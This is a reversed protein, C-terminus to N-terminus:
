QYKTRTVLMIIERGNPHYGVSIPKWGKLTKEDMWINATRIDGFEQFLYEDESM